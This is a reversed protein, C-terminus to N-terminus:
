DNVHHPEKPLRGNQMKVVEVSRGAPDSYGKAGEMYRKFGVCETEPTPDTLFIKAEEIGDSEVKNHCNPIVGDDFSEEADADYHTVANLRYPCSKCVLRKM